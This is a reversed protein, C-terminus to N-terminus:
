TLFLAEPYYVLCIKKKGSFVDQSIKKKFVEDNAFNLVATLGITMRGLM